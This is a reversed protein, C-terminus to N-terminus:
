AATKSIINIIKKIEENLNVIAERIAWKSKDRIGVENSISRVQLFPIKEQICVYHMAAGEMSEIHPSFSTILQQRQIESDSVKNITVSKVLPLKFTNLYAYENMLWGDTFPFQNKDAFATQYISTFKGSEEMGIDAFTDQQVIVVQGPQLEDNFTGAIGAQLVFDYKKQQLRKQLRYLAAPCGVGTIEVDVSVPLDDLMQIEGDTSAALLIQM